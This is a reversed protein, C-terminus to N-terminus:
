DQPCAKFFIFGVYVTYLREARFARVSLIFQGHCYAINQPFRIGKQVLGAARDLREVLPQRLQQVVHGLRQVLRVADSQRRRLHPHEAPHKNHIEALANNFADIRFDEAGSALLLIHLATQGTRSLVANGFPGLSDLQLRLIPM